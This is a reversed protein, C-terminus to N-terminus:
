LVTFEIGPTAALQSGELHFSQVRLAAGIFNKDNPIPLTVPSPVSAVSKWILISAPDVELTAGLVVIPVTARATGIAVVGPQPLGTGQVTLSFGTNGVLPLGGANPLEWRYTANGPTGTGYVEPNPNIAIGSLIGLGANTLLHDTGDPEMWFVSRAPAGANASLAAFNGTTADYEVANLAGNLTSVHVFSGNTVDIRFLSQFSDLTAAWLNGAKDFTLSSLGRPVSAVLTAAGGALPVSWIDGKTGEWCGLYVSTADPSLALANFVDVISAGNTIDIPTILGSRTDVIGVGQWGYATTLYNKLPGSAVDTVAVVVRGDPLLAMQPIEGCCSGGMGLSFSADLLVSTGNLWIVHLDISAGVPAREGVLIAGDSRRYLICSSGTVTLDGQLNTIATPSGPTRPHSLFVGIPGRQPSFAGHTYWGDPIQAAATAALVLFPVLRLPSRM